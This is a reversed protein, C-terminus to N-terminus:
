HGGWGFYMSLGDGSLNGLQRHEGTTFWDNVSELSEVEIPFSFGSDLNPRTPQLIVTDGELTYYEVFM